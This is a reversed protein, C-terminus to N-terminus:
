VELLVGVRDRNVGDLKGLIPPYSAILPSGWWVEEREGEVKPNFTTYSTTRYKKIPLKRLVCQSSLM